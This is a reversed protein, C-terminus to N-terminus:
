EGKTDRRMLRMARERGGGGWPYWILRQWGQVGLRGGAATAAAAAASCSLAVSAGTRACGLGNSRNYKIGGAGWFGLM